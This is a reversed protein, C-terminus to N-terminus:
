QEKQYVFQNPEVAVNKMDRLHLATNDDVKRMPSNWDNLTTQLWFLEDEDIESYRTKVWDIDGMTIVESEAM